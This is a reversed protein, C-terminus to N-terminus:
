TIDDHNIYHIDRVAEITVKFGEGLLIIKENEAEPYRLVIKLGFAYLMAIMLDTM